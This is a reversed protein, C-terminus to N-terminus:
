EVFTQDALSSLLKPDFTLIAHKYHSSFVLFLLPCLLSVIEIPAVSAMGQCKVGDRALQFYDSTCNIQCIDYTNLCAM